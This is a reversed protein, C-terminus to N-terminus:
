RNDTRDIISIRISTDIHRIAVRQSITLNM